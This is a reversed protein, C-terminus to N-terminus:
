CYLKLRAIGVIVLSPDFKNKMLKKTEPLVFRTLTKRELNM